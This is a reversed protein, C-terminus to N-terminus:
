TADEHRDLYDQLVLAAAARDLRGDERERRAATGQRAGRRGDAQRLQLAASRSSFAEDWYVVQPGLREIAQGLHRIADHLTGPSGDGRLPDGLVVRQVSHERILAELAPLLGKRADLTTLPTALRGAPDSLAVGVRALGYDLGLLRGGDFPESM